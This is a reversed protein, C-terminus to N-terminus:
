LVTIATIEKVKYYGKAQPLFVEMEKYKISLKKGIYKAAGDMFTASGQFQRLWIYSSEKGSRDAIVFYNFGRTEIRKLTGTTTVATEEDSGGQGGLLLALEKFGKCNQNILNMAIDVGVAEMGKRDTLEVNREVALATLLDAHKMVCDTYAATAEEKTTIKSMDMRTVCNCISDSIKQEAPGIKRTAQSFVTQTFLTLSLALLPLFKKM